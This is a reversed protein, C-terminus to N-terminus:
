QSQTFTPQIKEASRLLARAANCDPTCVTRLATLSYLPRGVLASLGYWLQSLRPDTFTHNGVRYTTWILSRTGARDVAVTERWEGSPSNVTRVSEQRLQGKRGLLHNWYSLLKANQTQVRYAVAFAEVKGGASKYGVLSEGDPRLFYPHWDGGTVPQPGSWGAPAAPWKVQLAPEGSHAWDMGYALAPLFALVVLTVTIQAVGFKSEPRTNDQREDAARKRDISAPQRGAWWLFGAFIAAFLWWGLWYHHKVLSSHMDSFYAAALVIFIRVWNEILSLIGMVGIWTLRRRLPEGTIEGYLTALALGVILAHLGSCTQAIEITGGPLHVFDGQVYAPLGTIWILVGTMKASFTQVIGNIDTWMPMAFYLYGVPFALVRAARWGLAAVFAMFLLLPLLMVHAEQIEARWSWVWLMSLLVLPILARPVARISAAALRKRDRWILWLSIALVLYGHTFPEEQSPNTWLANLAVASPWYLVVVAIWLGYVTLLRSLVPAQPLSRSRTAATPKATASPECGEPTTIDSM